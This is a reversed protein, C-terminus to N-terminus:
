FKRRSWMLLRLKRNRDISQKGSHNGGAETYFPVANLSADRHLSTLGQEKAQEELLRLLQM